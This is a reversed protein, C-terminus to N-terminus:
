IQEFFAISTTSSVVSEPLLNWVSIIQNCFFCRFSDHKPKHKCILVLTHRRLNYNAKDCVFFDNFDMDILCYCIKYTLILYLELRRYELSKLNLKYLRDCYSSFPINCRICARRTFILRSLEYKSTTISFTIIVDSILNHHLFGTPKKGVLIPCTSQTIRAVAMVSFALM